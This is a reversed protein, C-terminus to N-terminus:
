FSGNLTLRLRQQTSNCLFSTYNSVEEGEEDEWELDLSTADDNTSRTRCTFDWSSETNPTVLNTESSLGPYVCLVLINSTRMM